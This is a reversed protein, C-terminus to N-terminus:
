SEWGGSTTRLSSAVAPKWITVPSNVLRGVPPRSHTPCLWVRRLIQLFREQFLVLYDERIAFPRQARMDNLSGDQTQM